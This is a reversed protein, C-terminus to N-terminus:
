VKPCNVLGPTWTRTFDMTQQGALNVVANTAKPLGSEVDTWTISSTSPM